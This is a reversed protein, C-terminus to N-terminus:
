APFFFGGNQLEMNPRVACGLCAVAPVVKTPRFGVPTM